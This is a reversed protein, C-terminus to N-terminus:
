LSLKQIIFICFKDNASSFHSSPAYICTYINLSESLTRKLLSNVFSFITSSLLRYFMHKITMMNLKKKCAFDKAFISLHHFYKKLIITFQKAYEL